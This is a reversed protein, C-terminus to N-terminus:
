TFPHDQHHPPPPQQPRSNKGGALVDAVVDLTADLPAFHRPTLWALYLRPLQVKDGVTKTKLGTLAAAPIAMPEPAPPAKGNGSGEERGGGAAPPASVGPGVWGAM